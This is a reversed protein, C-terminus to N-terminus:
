LHDPPRDSRQNSQFVPLGNEPQVDPGLTFQREVEMAIDMRNDTASSSREVEYRDNQVANHLRLLREQYWGPLDFTPDEIKACRYAYERAPEFDPHNSLELDFYTTSDRQLDRILHGQPTTQEIIFRQGERLAPGRDGPYSGGAELVSILLPGIIDGLPARPRLSRGEVGLFWRYEAESGFQEPVPFALENFVHPAVDVLSSPPNSMEHTIGNLMVSGCQLISQQLQASPIDWDTDDSLESADSMRALDPTLDWQLSVPKMNTVTRDSPVQIACCRKHQDTYRYRKYWGGLDFKPSALERISVRLPIGEYDEDHIDWTMYGNTVVDFRFEDDVMDTNKTPYLERIGSRLVQAANYGYADGMTICNNRFYIHSGTYESCKDTYWAGIHFYPDRLASAEIVECRRYDLDFVFYQSSDEPNTIVQFRKGQYVPNIFTFPADGPYPVEIQLANQAGLALADGVSTRRKATPDYVDDWQQYPRHTILEWRADAQAFSIMGIPISELYEVEEPDEDTKVEISFNSLGPPRTNNSRVNSNKSCNRSM